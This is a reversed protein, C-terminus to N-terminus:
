CPTKVGTFVPYVEPTSALLIDHQAAFYLDLLKSESDPFLPGSIWRMHTPKAESRSEDQSNRKTNRECSAVDVAHMLILIFLEM